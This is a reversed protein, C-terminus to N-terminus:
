FYQTFSIVCIYKKAYTYLDHRLLLQELFSSKEHERELVKKKWDEVRFNQTREISVLDVVCLSKKPGM